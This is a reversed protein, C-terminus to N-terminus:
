RIENVQHISSIPRHRTIRKLIAVVLFLVFFVCVCGVPFFFFDGLIAAIFFNGVLLQM